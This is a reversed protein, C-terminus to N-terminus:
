TAGALPGSWHHVEFNEMDPAPLRVTVLIDLRRPWAIRLGQALMECAGFLYKLERDL